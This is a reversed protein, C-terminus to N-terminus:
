LDFVRPGVVVAHPARYECHVPSNIATGDHTACETRPASAECSNPFNEFNQELYDSFTGYQLNFEEATLTLALPSASKACLNARAASRLCASPASGPRPEVGNSAVVKIRGNRILLLEGYVM